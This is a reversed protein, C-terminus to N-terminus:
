ISRSSLISHCFPVPSVKLSSKYVYEDRGAGLKKAKAFVLLDDFLFLHRKAVKHRSKQVTFEEQLM